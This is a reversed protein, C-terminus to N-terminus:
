TTATPTHTEEVKRKKRSVNGRASVREQSPIIRIAHFVYGEAGGRASMLPHTRGPLVQWHRVRSTQLTPGILLTPDVQFEDVLEKPASAPGSSEPTESRRAREEELERKKNMFAVRRATSYLDVLNVLPEITPSYVVVNAGGALLPVAHKLVTPPDMLTAVILGDFGGARTEDVVRRVREFRSRKRYYSGRKGPKWSAITEEDEVQPEEAYITDSEPELLQLWSVTKLHTYLPHSEDPNTQDYGFYKLLSLNPHQYAHLLTITNTTATMGQKRPPHRIRKDESEQETGNLQQERSDKDEDKKEEEDEERPYLIGMREALAAILLGGAEDVVLYRGNPKVMQELPVNGAHHVNAWCGILGILEDRLEMIRSASKEELMIHTLISVDMPLVSFRRLFKKEKRLKYKALSFATKQDIASHSELLKAIVERGADTSQRKLEEIEALTLRQTSTDDVIERNTRMTAGDENYLGADEGGQGDGGSGESILEEAHLETAPVIRLSHGSTHDDVIEFTLFFPRGLIQNSYFHGFKGISITRNLRTEILVM